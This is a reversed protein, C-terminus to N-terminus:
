HTKGVKKGFALVQEKTYSDAGFKFTEDGLESLKHKGSLIDRGRVRDYEVGEGLKDQMKNVSSEVERMTKKKDILHKATQIGEGILGILGQRSETKDGIAKSKIKGIDKEKEIEFLNAEYKGMAMAAKM